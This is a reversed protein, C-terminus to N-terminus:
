TNLDRLLSDVAYAKKPLQDQFVREEPVPAEEGLLIHILGKAEPHRLGLETVSSSHSQRAPM